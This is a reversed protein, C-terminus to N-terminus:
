AGHGVAALLTRRSLRCALDVAARAGSLPGTRGDSLATLTDRVCEALAGPEYGGELVVGVPAELAEALDRVHRAMEAFSSSELRCNALPDVRHADFGASILM